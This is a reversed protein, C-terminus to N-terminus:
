VKVGKLAEAMPNIPEPSKVQKSGIVERSQREFRAEIKRAIERKLTNPLTDTDIV